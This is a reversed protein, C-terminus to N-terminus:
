AGLRPENRGVAALVRGVASLLKDVDDPAASANPQALELIELAEPTLVARDVLSRIDAEDAASAGARLEGRVALLAGGVMHIAKAALTHTEEPFGGAALVRAMRLARDAQRMAEGARTDLPATAAPEPPIAASRHLIRAEHTFQLLGAAALRRLSLWSAYDVFEVGFGAHSDARGIETALADQDLDVVALLSTRGAGDRRAEVLLVKDGHRQVLDLVFAEEPTVVRPALRTSATL